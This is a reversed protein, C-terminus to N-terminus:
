CAQNSGMNIDSLIVRHVKSSKNVENLESILYKIKSVTKQVM